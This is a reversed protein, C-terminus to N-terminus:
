VPHTKQVLWRCENHGYLIASFRTEYLEVNFEALKSYARSQTVFSRPNTIQYRESHSSYLHSYFQLNEKLGPMFLWFVSVFFCSLIYNVKVVLDGVHLWQVNLLTFLIKKLNPWVICKHDLNSYILVTIAWLETNNTVYMFMLIFFKCFAALQLKILVTIYM